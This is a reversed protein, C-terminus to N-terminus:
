SPSRRSAARATTASATWTGGPTAAPRCTSTSTRASLIAEAAHRGSLAAMPLGAGPHAGGGALYLGPLATPARPRAFAAMMGRPSRGYLSGDSHPFLADFGTPTTLSDARPPPDFSLGFRALRDLILTTCSDKEETRTAARPPPASPDAAGLPPANMIVEFRGLAGPPAEDDQACVYLTPSTPLRGEALAAFEARADDGFFVTHHALEPGRARAAFSLVCASLSRPRVAAAPVGRRAERGLTGARLANPDGNFVVADAPHRLGGAHVAVPRGGRWEIREAHAGYHFAAGRARALAEIARALRHMGGEVRWVGRREAEWILGILAPVAQPSGGVYTAYRGFLQALKPEHFRRALHGALTRGADMARLLSPRRLVLGALARLSPAPSRMMPADFAEFLAAMDASFARFERESRAGFVARVEAASVEPDAALDLATGDSWLHRALTALPRLAVHDELREGVEEFLAEFVPLLTLVTPGADVPGAASPVARLKGGPADLREVVTVAAGAHALRLAAVLGGIGAGIVVIEEPRAM